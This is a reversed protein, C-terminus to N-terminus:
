KDHPKQSSKASCDNGACNGSACGFAFLGMAAFYGGFLIGFGQGDMVSQVLLFVGIGLYLVRKVTWGTLIREKM